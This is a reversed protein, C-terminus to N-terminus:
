VDSASEYIERGNSDKNLIPLSITKRHQSIFNAISQVMRTVSRHLPYFKGGLSVKANLLNTLEVRHSLEFSEKLELSLVKSDVFPRYPEILDDALNFPNFQNAHFIGLSPLLGSGVINRAIVGRLIAYGYNLASNIPAPDKRFFNKGFLAPFYFMSAKAENNTSDGLKVGKQLSQLKAAISLHDEEILLNAQNCIKSQIIKQWLISKNQKSLAIQSQLMQANRYHSLFPLFIGSPLHSDDSIFLTIKYRAFAQLLSSSLSIQPTDIIITHIDRLPIFVSEREQLHLFLNNNKHSLKAPNSLFLTRYAEDFM